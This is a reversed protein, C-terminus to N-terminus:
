AFECKYPCLAYAKITINGKIFNLFFDETNITSFFYKRVLLAFTINLYSGSNM